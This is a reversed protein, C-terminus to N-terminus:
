RFDVECFAGPDVIAIDPLTEGSGLKATLVNEFVKGVAENSSESVTTRCYSEFWNFKKFPYPFPILFKKLLLVYEDM